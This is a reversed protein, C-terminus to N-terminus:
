IPPQLGPTCAAPPTGPPTCAAASTRSTTASCGSGRGADDPLFSAAAGPASDRLAEVLARPGGPAVVVLTGVVTAGGTVAPGGGREAGLLRAHDVLVPRGDPRAVELESVYAGLGWTEGRAVRGATVVDALALVGDPHVVAECRQHFRSGAYPVLPDPVWECVAGAGVALTVRQEAHGADSRYVRTSAQTTVVAHAGDRVAARLELRDGGVIGGGSSMVYCVPVNPLAPDCYLPRMLHLPASTRRRTVVSRAGDRAVVLDLLGRKGPAGVPLSGAVPPPGLRVEEPAPTM